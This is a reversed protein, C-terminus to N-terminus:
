VIGHFELLSPKSRVDDTPTPSMALMIQRARPIPRSCLANSSSRTSLSAPLPKCEDM